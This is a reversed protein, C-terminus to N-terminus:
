LGAIRLAGIRARDLLQAAAKDPLNRAVLLTGVWFSLLQYAVAGDSAGDLHSAIKEAIRATREAFTKKVHAPARSVEAGLSPIACGEGPKARHAASLYRATAAEVYERGRLGEMGKSFLNREAQDFAEEVAEAFLVTKDRFHAYFGGHTLGAEAMVRDIGTTAQGDKRNPATPGPSANSMVGFMGVSAALHWGFPGRSPGLRDPTGRTDDGGGRPAPRFPRRKVLTPLLIRCSRM